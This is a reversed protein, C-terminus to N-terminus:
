RLADLQSQLQKKLQDAPNNTSKPNPIDKATPKDTFFTVEYPTMKGVSVRYFFGYQKDIYMTTTGQGEVMEAIWCPRGCCTGEKALRLDVGEPLDVAVPYKSRLLYRVEGDLTSNDFSYEWSVKGGKYITEHYGEPTAEYVNTKQIVGQLRFQLYVKDGVRAIQYTEDLAPVPTTANAYKHQVYVLAFDHNYWYDEAAPEEYETAGDEEYRARDAESRSQDEAQELAELASGLKELLGGLGSKVVTSDGVAEGADPAQPRVGTFQCSALMLLVPVFLWYKRM